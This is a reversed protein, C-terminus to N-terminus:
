FQSDLFEKIFGVKLFSGNRKGSRLQMGCLFASAQNDVVQVVFVPGGSLGDPNFDLEKVYEFDLLATDSPQGTPKAVLINKRLGLHNKDALEYQQQDSPFGALIFAIIDKNWTDQPLADLPYFINQLQPNQLVPATFDFAALDFADSFLTEEGSNFSRFGSSTVVTSGDPFLLSVDQTEIHRLQHRSCVLFFKERYVIPTASGVLSIKYVEDHNWVFLNSVFRGLYSEVSAAPVLLNGIKVSMEILGRKVDYSNSLSAGTCDVFRAATASLVATSHERTNRVLM